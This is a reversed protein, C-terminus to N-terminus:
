RRRFFFAVKTSATPPAGTASDGQGPLCFAASWGSELRTFYAWGPEKLPTKAGTALVQELTSAVTLGEPTVFRPDDSHIYSVQHEGDVAVVYRIGKFLFDTSEQIGGSGTMLMVNTPPFTLSGGIEPFTSVMYMPRPLSCGILFLTALIPRIM